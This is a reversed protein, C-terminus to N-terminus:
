SVASANACALNPLVGHADGVVQHGVHLLDARQGRRAHKQEGLLTTCRLWCYLTKASSLVIACTHMLTNSRHAPITCLHHQPLPLLEAHKPVVILRGVAGADTVVHACKCKSVLHTGSWTCAHMSGGRLTHWKLQWVDTTLQQHMMLDPVTKGLCSAQLFMDSKLAAMHHVHRLPMHRRQVM